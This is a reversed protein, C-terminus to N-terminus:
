SICIYPLPSRPPYCDVLLSVAWNTQSPKLTLPCHVGVQLRSILRYESFSSKCHSYALIVAGYVIVPILLLVITLLHCVQIHACTNRFTVPRRSLRRAAAHRVSTLNRARTSEVTVRWRTARQSRNAASASAAAIHVIALTPASICRPLVCM